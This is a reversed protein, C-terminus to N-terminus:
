ARCVWLAIESLRFTAAGSEAPPVYTVRLGLLAHDTTRPSALESSKGDLGFFVIDHQHSLLCLQTHTLTFTFEHRAFHYCEVTLKQCTHPM